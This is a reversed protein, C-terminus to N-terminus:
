ATCALFVVPGLAPAGWFLWWDLASPRVAADMRRALRHVLVEGAVGILIMPLIVLGAYRWESGGYLDIGAVACAVGIPGLAMMCMM